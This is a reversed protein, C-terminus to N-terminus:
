PAVRLREALALLKVFGELVMRVREQRDSPRVREVSDLTSEAVTRTREKFEDGTVIERQDTAIVAVQVRLTEVYAYIRKVEEAELEVPCLMRAFTNANELLVMGDDIGPVMRM